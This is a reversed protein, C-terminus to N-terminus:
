TGTGTCIFTAPISVPVPVPVPEDNINNVYKRYVTTNDTGSFTGTGAAPILFPVPVPEVLFYSFIKLTSFCLKLFFM